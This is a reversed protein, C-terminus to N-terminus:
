NKVCFVQSLSEESQGNLQRRIRAVEIMLEAIPEVLDVNMPRIHQHLDQISNKDDLEGYLLCPGTRTRDKDKAM